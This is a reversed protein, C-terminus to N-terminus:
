ERLPWNREINELMKRLKNKFTEYDIKKETSYPIIAGVLIHEKKAIGIKMWREGNESFSPLLNIKSLKERIKEVDISEGYFNYWLAITIEEEGVLIEAKFIIGTKNTYVTIFATIVNPSLLNPCMDMDELVSMIIKENKEKNDV